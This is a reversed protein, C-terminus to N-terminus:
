EILVLDYERNLSGEMEQVPPFLSFLTVPKYGSPNAKLSRGCGLLSMWYKLANKM